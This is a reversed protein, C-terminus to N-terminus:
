RRKDQKQMMKTQGNLLCRSAVLVCIGTSLSFKVSSVKRRRYAHVEKLEAGAINGDVKCKKLKPYQLPAEEIVCEVQLNGERM